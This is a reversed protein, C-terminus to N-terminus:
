GRKIAHAMRNFIKPMFALALILLKSGNGNYKNGLIKKINKLLTIRLIKYIDSNKNILDNIIIYRLVIFLQIFYYSEAEQILLPKKIKIFDLMEKANEYLDFVYSSSISNTISNNRNIYNYAVENIYIGRSVNSLVEYLLKFDENNRGEHFRVTSFISSKFLKTCSSSDIKFLLLYKLLRDGDMIKEQESIKDNNYYSQNSGTLHLLRCLAIDAKYDIIGKYLFEYMNINIWDDSDVFGFYDGKAINIGANRASSLGGNEKHIVIVRSDKKVYEDCIEGSTDKSSDDVLILEFDTFTQILISDICKHIYQEVNYVPVIISIKPTTNNM